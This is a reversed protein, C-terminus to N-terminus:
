PIGLGVPIPKREPVQGVSAVEVAGIGCGVPPSHPILDNSGVAHKASCLHRAVIRHTNHAVGPCVVESMGVAAVVHHAPLAAVLVRLPGEVLDADTFGVQGGVPVAQGLNCRGLAILRGPLPMEIRQKGVLGAGCQVAGIGRHVLGGQLRLLGIRCQGRGQLLHHELYATSIICPLLIVVVPVLGSPVSGAGLAVAHLEVLGVVLRLRRGLRQVDICVCVDVVGRTDKGVHLLHEVDHHLASDLVTCREVEGRIDTVTLQVAVVVAYLQVLTKIDDRRILIAVVVADVVHYVGEVGRLAGAVIGLCALQRIVFVQRYMDLAAVDLAIPVLHAVGEVARAVLSGVPVIEFLTGRLGVEGHHALIHHELERELVLIGADAAIPSQAAEEILLHIDVHNDVLPVVDHKPLAEHHAQGVPLGELGIVLLRGVRVLRVHKLIGAIVAIGIGAVVAVVVVQMTQGDGLVGGEHATSPLRAVVVAVRQVLNYTVQGGTGARVPSGGVLYAVLM